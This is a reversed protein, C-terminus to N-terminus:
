QLAKWAIGSRIEDLTWQNDALVAAWPWILDSAVPNYSQPTEIRALDTDGPTAAAGQGTVFAAVGALLAENAAASSHTVVAWCNRLEEALTGMREKKDRGWERVVILRDTHEKLRHLVHRQWGAAGDPWGVVHRMFDDSQRVVLIRDGTPAMRRPTLGLAALRKGDSRGLGSHQLANRTIRFQTGRACDFYSNDIYYWDCGRRQVERWAMMTPGPMVGYFAAPGPWVEVGDTHVVLGQTGAGQAFAECLLRSKPKGHIPYCTVFPPVPQSKM